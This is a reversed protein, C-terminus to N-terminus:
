QQKPLLPTSLAAATRTSRPMQLKSALPFLLFCPLNSKSKDPTASDPIWAASCRIARTNRTGTVGRSEVCIVAAPYLWHM